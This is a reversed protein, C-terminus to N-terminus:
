NEICRNQLFGLPLWNIAAKPSSGVQTSKSYVKRSRISYTTAIIPSELNCGIKPNDFSMEKLRRFEDLGVELM